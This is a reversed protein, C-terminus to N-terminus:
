IKTEKLTLQLVSASRASGVTYLLARLHEHHNYTPIRVTLDFRGIATLQGFKFYAVENHVKIDLVFSLACLGAIQIQVSM